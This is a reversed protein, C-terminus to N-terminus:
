RWTSLVESGVQIVPFVLIGIFLSLSSPPFLLNSLLGSNPKLWQFCNIGILPPVYGQTLSLPHTVSKSQLHALPHNTPPYSTVNQTSRKEPLLKQTL